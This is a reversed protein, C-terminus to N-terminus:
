YRAPTGVLFLSRLVIVHLVVDEDFRRQCRISLLFQQKHLTLPVLRLPSEQERGRRISMSPSQHRPNPRLSYFHGPFHHAGGPVASTTAPLPPPTTSTPFHNENPVRSVTPEEPRPQSNRVSPFAEMLLLLLTSSFYYVVVPFRFSAGLNLLLLRRDGVCLESNSFM